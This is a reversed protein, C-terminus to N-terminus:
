VTATWAVIPPVSPNTFHKGPQRESGVRETLGISDLWEAIPIAHKRTLGFDAKFDQMSISGRTNLTQQVATILDLAHSRLLHQRDNLAILQGHERACALASRMREPHPFRDCLPHDFPPRLEAEHYAALINKLDDSATKSFSVHTTVAACQSGYLQISNGDAMDQLHDLWQGRSLHKAAVHRM